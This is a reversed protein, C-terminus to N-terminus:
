QIAKRPTTIPRIASVPNLYPSINLGTSGNLLLGPIESNWDWGLMAKLCYPEDLFLLSLSFFVLILFLLWLGRRVKRAELWSLVLPMRLKRVLVLIKQPKQGSNSWWNRNGLRTLVMSSTIKHSAIRNIMIYHLNTSVTANGSNLKLAPYYKMIYVPWMKNVWEDALSLKM